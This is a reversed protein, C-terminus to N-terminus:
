LEDSPTILDNYNVLLETIGKGLVFLLVVVLM